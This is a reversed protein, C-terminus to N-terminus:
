APSARPSGKLFVRLSKVLMFYDGIQEPKSFFATAGSSLCRDRDRMSRSSTWVVIPAGIPTPWAAIDALVEFGSRRPMNLDLLVLDPKEGKAIMESLKSLGADGDEATTILADMGNREFAISLLEVDGMNDEVLLVRPYHRNATSAQQPSEPQESPVVHM